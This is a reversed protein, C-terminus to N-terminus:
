KKKEPVKARTQRQRCLVEDFKKARLIRERWSTIRRLCTSWTFFSFFMRFTGRRRRRRRRRLWDPTVKCIAVPCGAVGRHRLCHWSFNCKKSLIKNANAVPQPWSQGGSLDISKWQSLHGRDILNQGVLRPIITSGLASKKRRKEPSWVGRESRGRRSSCPNLSGRGERGMRRRLRARRTNACRLVNRGTSSARRSPRSRRRERTGGSGRRRRCPGWARSGAARGDLVCRWWLSQNQWPSPFGWGEAQQNFDSEITQTQLHDCVSGPGETPSWLVKSRLYNLWLHFDQCWLIRFMNPCIQLLIMGKLLQLITHRFWPFWTTCKCLLARDIM